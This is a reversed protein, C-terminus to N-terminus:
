HCAIEIARPERRIQLLEAEVENAEAARGADRFAGRHKLRIAGSAPDFLEGREPTGRDEAWRGVAPQTDRPLSEGHRLARAFANCKDKLVAALEHARRIVLDKAGIPTPDARVLEDDPHVADHRSEFGREVLWLVVFCAIDQAGSRELEAHVVRRFSEAGEGKCTEETVEQAVSRDAHLPLAPHVHPLRQIALRYQRVDLEDGALPWHPRLVVLALPRDHERLAPGIRDDRERAHADALANM